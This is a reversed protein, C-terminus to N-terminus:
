LPLDPKAKIRRMWDREAAQAIKILDDALATNGLGHAAAAALYGDCIFTIGHKGLMRSATSALAARKVSV